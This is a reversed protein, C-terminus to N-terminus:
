EYNKKNLNIYEEKLKKKARSILTGVSSIPIKLIESIEEYSKEEEFRLIFIEKYKLPLKFFLKKLLEQNEIKEMEDKIENKWFKSEVFFLNDEVSIDNERKKNKRWYDIMKNHTIQYIWSSFKQGKKFYYYKQYITIFVDQLIDEREDKSFNSIKRLFDDLRKKYRNIIIELFYYDEKIKLFVKEDSIKKTTNKLLM